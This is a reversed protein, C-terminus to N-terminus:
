RWTLFARSRSLEFMQYMLGSYVYDTTDKLGAHIKGRRRIWKLLENYEPKALLENAAM